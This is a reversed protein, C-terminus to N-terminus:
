SPQAHHCYQFHHWMLPLRNCYSKSVKSSKRRKYKKKDMKVTRINNINKSNNKQLIRDKPQQPLCMEGNTPCYLFVSQNQIHSELILLSWILLLHEFLFFLFVFMFMMPIFTKRHSCLHRQLTGPKETSTSCFNARRNVWHQQLVCLHRRGPEGSCKVEWDSEQHSKLLWKVTCNMNSSKISKGKGEGRHGEKWRERKMERAEKKGRGRGNGISELAGVTAYERKGEAMEGARQENSSSVM